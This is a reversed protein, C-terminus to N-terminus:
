DPYPWDTLPDWAPVSPSLFLLRTDVRDETIEQFYNDAKWSHNIRIENSQTSIASIFINTKYGTQFPDTIAEDSWILPNVVVAPKTYVGASSTPGGFFTLITKRIIAYSSNISGVPSHEPTAYPQHQKPFPDNHKDMLDLFAKWFRESDEEWGTAFARYAWNETMTGLYIDMPLIVPYRGSTYDTVNASIIPAGDWKKDYAWWNPRRIIRDLYEKWMAPRPFYICIHKSADIFASMARSPHTVIYTQPTSDTQVNGFEIYNVSNNDNPDRRLPVSYCANPHGSAADIANGNNDQDERVAVASGVPCTCAKIVPDWTGGVEVGTKPDYKCPTPLCITNTYTLFQAAVGRKYGAAVLTEINDRNTYDGCNSQEQEYYLRLQIGPGATDSWTALYPSDSPVSCRGTYFPDFTIAGTGDYVEGTDGNVFDYPGCPSIFTSCNSISSSHTFLGPYKCRVIFHLGDSDNVLVLQSTYENLTNVDVDSSPVCYSGAPYTTDGLEVEDPFTTCKWNYEKCRFCPRYPENEDPTCSLLNTSCQVSNPDEIQITAPPLPFPREETRVRRAASATIFSKRKYNAILSQQRAPSPLIYLPHSEIIM